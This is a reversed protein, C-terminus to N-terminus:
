SHSLGNRCPLKGGPIEWPGRERVIIIYNGHSNELLSKNRKTERQREAGGPENSVKQQWPSVRKAWDEEALTNIRYIFM